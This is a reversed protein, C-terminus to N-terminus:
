EPLGTDLGGGQADAFSQLHTGACSVCGPQGPEPNIGLCARCLDADPTPPSSLDPDELAPEYRQAFIEAKCPYLEGDGACIIWDGPEVVYSGALANIRTTISGDGDVALILAGPADHDAMFAALLWAPWLTQDHAADNTWRFAEVVVPLKRFKHQM